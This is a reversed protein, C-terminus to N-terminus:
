VQFMPADTSGQSKVARRNRVTVRDGTQIGAEDAVEGGGPSHGGPGDGRQPGGVVRGTVTQRRALLRQLLLQSM